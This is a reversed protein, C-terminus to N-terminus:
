HSMLIQEMTLGLQQVLLNSLIRIPMATQTNGTILALKKTIPDYYGAIQQTLLQAYMKRLDIPSTVFGVKLLRQELEHLTDGPYMRAFERDLVAGLEAPTQFIKEIELHFPLGRLQAVKPELETTLRESASQGFAPSHYFILTFALAIGTLLRHSNRM